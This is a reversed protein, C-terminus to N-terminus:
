EGGDKLARIKDAIDQRFMEANPSDDFLKACQEQKAAAVLAAFRELSVVFPEWNPGGPARVDSERAMRLIEDRQTM